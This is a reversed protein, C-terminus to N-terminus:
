ALASRSCWWWYRVRASVAAESPNVGLAALTRSRWARFHLDPTTRQLMRYAQLFTDQALDDAVARDRVLHYLYSTIPGHYAAFLQAFAAANGAQAHGILAREDTM